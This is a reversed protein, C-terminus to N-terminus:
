HGQDNKETERTLLGAEFLHEEHNYLLYIAYTTKFIWIARLHM